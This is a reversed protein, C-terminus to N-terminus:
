GTAEQIEHPAEPLPLWISFEAGGQPAAGAEIRGGHADVLSKAIALGLGTGGTPTGPVRYFKEFIQGRLNEPIGNGQDRVKIAVFGSHPETHISIETGPVSYAAANLLINSLAHQLLQFDGQIYFPKSGETLKIRHESLPLALSKLTQGILDGIEFWEKNIKLIGSELRTMDLLNEFVRNLRDGSQVMEDILARRTALDSATKEDLLATAAGIIATLPTRLEHSICNLLTQHLRESEAFLNGRSREEEFESKAIAVAVQNALVFLLNKQEPTLERRSRPRFLLVGYKREGLKLSVALSSAMPLTDTSWGAIRGNEFSWLAVALEKEDLRMDGFAPGKKKKLNESTLVCCEGNFLEELRALAVQVVADVGRALTMAKLIEYLINTKEERQRLARQQRKLRYTFVGTMIAVVFYTVFMMIDAPHRIHFTFLPPIFFFNWILASLAAGLLTPGLSTFIGLAMIALLFIFGIAQYGIIDKLFWSSIAIGSIFLATKFYSSFRAEAKLPPLFRIPPKEIDPQRIVHVDIGRSERVVRDLLSGGEFLERWFRKQPRGIVIQAVNKSRAVRQIAAAVDSDQTTVVEAGLERALELHKVLRNQEEDRLRKGNDVYLAIWTTELQVAMRRTTRILRESFPSHGVAVLIREGAGPAELRNEEMIQQLDKDVREATARLAIERLATLNSEQFFHEMARGAREPVYVKGERLRKLLEHPSIDILEIQDALDLVSDPVTERVNVATILRVVDVRSELHQVNMTSYVNIGSELLEVVDQYRKPHRSGPANTHALEDVLVLGPKRALIADLDMEELTTGRYDIKKRPLDSLGQLLATTEPRGHTEVLGVVVDVGRRKQERAANLMAYTKGVGASMGFFLRLKGNKTGHEERHIAAL